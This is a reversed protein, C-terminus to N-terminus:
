ASTRCVQEWLTRVRRRFMEYSCGDDGYYMLHRCAVVQGTCSRSYRITALPVRGELQEIRNTCATLRLGKVMSLGELGLALQDLSEKGHVIILPPKVKTLIRFFIDQGRDRISRPEGYLMYSAATPFANVNTEAVTAHLDRNIWGVLADIGTRTRSMSAKGERIRKSRYFALFKDYDKLLEVYSPLDIEHPWIPTAPNIGVLFVEISSLRGKCVLPRFYPKDDAAPVSMASLIKKTLPM